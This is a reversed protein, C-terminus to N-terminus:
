FEEQEATDEQEPALVISFDLMPADGGPKLFRAVNRPVCRRGNGISWKFDEPNYESQFSVSLFTAEDEKEVTFTAEDWQTATDEEGQFFCTVTALSCYSKVSMKAPFSPVKAVFMGNDDKGFTGGSITVTLYASKDGGLCLTSSDFDQM